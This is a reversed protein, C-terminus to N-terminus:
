CLGYIVASADRYLVPLDASIPHAAPATLYRFGEHCLTRYDGAAITAALRADAALVSDPYRSIYGFALPHGDLVQDYLQLSKNVRGGAVAADDIVGGPPLRRVATVYAPRGVPTVPPPAPWLEIVLGACVAATIVRGGTSARNVRSLVLAALVGAAITTLMSIRAPEVNYELIPIAARIVAFPLPVGTDHGHVVLRPGLSLLASVGALALWFGAHPGLRRRWRLAVLLLAVVTVSLYITADGSPSPAGWYWRTLANFRWHQGDLLLALVDSSASAHGGGMPDRLNSVALAVPLPLALAASLVGFTATSGAQVRLDKRRWVHVLIGLATLVSFLFYYYDCLVVLSLTVATGAALRTSPRELLRWWLLLFLPVWELSVLQMLGLTKSLHYASFTIVFGGILAPVRVACFRRCLWYGTVGTAVFSFVIMVNFAWVLPMVRQLAVGVLGNFPNMTQGLLTTGYPYHLLDTHWPSQHLVTLARNVWWMNWVNQYGDGSDTFYRTGPHAAWPWTYLAFFALYGAAPLVADVLVRRATGGSRWRRAPAPDSCGVAVAM